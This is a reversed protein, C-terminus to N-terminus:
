RSDGKGEAPPCRALAGKGEGRGPRHRDHPVTPSRDSRGPRFCPRGGRSRLEPGQELGRGGGEGRKVRRSVRVHRRSARRGKGGEGEDEAQGRGRETLQVRGAGGRRRKAQGRASALQATSTQSRARLLGPTGRTPAVALESCACAACLIISPIAPPVTPQSRGAGSKTHPSCGLRGRGDVGRELVRGGVDGAGAAGVTGVEQSSELDTEREKVLDCPKSRAAAVSPSHPSPMKGEQRLGAGPRTPEGGRGALLAGRQSRVRRRECAQGVVAEEEALRARKLVQAQVSVKTAVVEAQKSQKVVAPSSSLSM